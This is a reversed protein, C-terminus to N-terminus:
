ASSDALTVLAGANSVASAMEATGVWQMGGQMIPHQVGVKKTFETVFGM